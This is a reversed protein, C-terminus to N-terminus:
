LPVSTCLNTRESLNDTNFNAYQDAFCGGHLLLIKAPTGPTFGVGVIKTCYM